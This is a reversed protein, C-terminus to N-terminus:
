SPLQQDWANEQDRVALTLAVLLDLQVKLFLFSILYGAKFKRILDKLKWYLAELDVGRVELSDNTIGILYLFADTQVGKLWLM